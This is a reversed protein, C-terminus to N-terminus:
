GNRKSMGVGFGARVMVRLAVRVIYRVAVRVICVNVVHTSWM